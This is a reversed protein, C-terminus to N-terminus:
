SHYSQMRKFFKQNYKYLNKFEKFLNDYLKRNEPNPKFVKEVRIYEKIDEYQKIHGLGYSALLAAGRAGAEKPNEVRHIERNFVDAFIQCWVDSVAGGGIINVKMVPSYLNEITELLWRSNYAVGEFLSRILHSRNHELSVNYLGGRVAHDDLPSKEGALWPTFILGKSGAPVDSALEQFLSYPLEQEEEEGSEK